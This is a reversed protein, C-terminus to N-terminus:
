IKQIAKNVIISQKAKSKTATTFSCTLIATKKIKAIFEDDDGEICVNIIQTYVCLKYYIFCKVFSKKRVRTKKM